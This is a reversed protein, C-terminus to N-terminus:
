DAPCRAWRWEVGRPSGDVVGDIRASLVDKEPQVYTIRQPFDHEPNEFVLRGEAVEVLTFETRKQGSPSAVYTARDGDVVIELTETEVVEGGRTTRSTGVLKDGERSWSETTTMGDEEGTWCGVLFALDAEGDVEAARPAAAACGGLFLLLWRM